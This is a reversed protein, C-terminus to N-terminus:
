KVAMRVPRFVVTATIENGPDLEALGAKISAEPTNKGFAGNLHSVPEVCFFEKDDPTFVVLHRLNGDASMSLSRGQEPWNIVATGCWGDFVNDLGQLLPERGKFNDLAPHDTQRANPLMNTDNLHIAAVESSLTTEDTRPFFPHLGIGAPMPEVSCNKLSLSINLAENEISIVQRAEYDWPWANNKHTMFLEVRSSAQETVRWATQWGHGHIAHPEPPFNAPLDVDRGRWTFRGCDIRNSFPVLPYCATQLVDTCNVPAPRLWHHWGQATRERFCLVAGGLAPDIQAELADQQISIPEGM